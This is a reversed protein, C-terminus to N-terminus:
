HGLNDILQKRNKEPLYYIAEALSNGDYEPCNCDKVKKEYLEFDSFVDPRGCRWEICRACGLADLVQNKRYVLSSLKEKNAEFKKQDSGSSDCVFTATEKLPELAEQVYKPTNSCGCIGLAVVASVAMRTLYNPM